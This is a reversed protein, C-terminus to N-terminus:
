ASLLAAHAHSSWLLADRPRVWRGAYLQVEGADEAMAAGLSSAGGEPLRQEALHSGTSVDWVRLTGDKSGSAPSLHSNGVGQSILAVGTVAQQHGRFECLQKLKRRDWLRLECGEGDFGNSGTLFYEGTAACALPFYIYGEMTAVPKYLARPDWLRLRLDESGQLVVSQESVWSM